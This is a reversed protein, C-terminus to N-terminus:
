FIELLDLAAYVNSVQSAHGGEAYVVFMQSLTSDLNQVLFSHKDLSPESISQGGDKGASVPTPDLRHVTGGTFGLSNIDTSYELISEAGLSTFTAATTYAGHVHGIIFRASNPEAFFKTAKLAALGRNPHGANMTNKLRIALIPEEAVVPIRARFDTEASRKLGTPLKIGDGHVASCIEKLVSPSATAAHNRAEYRIPLTPNSWYAEDTKGAHEFTCVDYFEIGILFGCRIVGVALYAFDFIADTIKEFNYTVGSAGSGNLQDHWELRDIRETEVGNKYVVFALQSDSLELYVGNHGDGYGLRQTLGTKEPALRFTCQPNLGNGSSYPSVFASQRVAFDGQNQGIALNVCANDPDHLITHNNGAEFWQDTGKTHTNKHEWIPVRQSVRIEGFPTLNTDAKPKTQVTTPTFDGSM